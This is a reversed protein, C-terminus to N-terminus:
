DRGSLTHLVFGPAFSLGRPAYYRALGPHVFSLTQESLQDWGRNHGNVDDGYGWWQMWWKGDLAPVLQHGPLACEYWHTHGTLLLHINRPFNARIANRNHALAVTLGTSPISDPARPAGFYADDVGVINLRGGRITVSTEKNTLETFGSGEIFRSIVEPAKGHYDHNGHVFLSLVARDAVRKLAQQAAKSLDDPTRTILDGTFAVLDVCTGARELHDCLAHLERVPRDDDKLFHVDSLHLITTGELAPSVSDHYVCYSYLDSWSSIKSRVESSKTQALSRTYENTSRGTFALTRFPDPSNGSEEVRRKEPLLEDPPSWPGEIYRRMKDSFSRFLSRDIERIQVLSSPELPPVWPGFAWGDSVVPPLSGTSADLHVM